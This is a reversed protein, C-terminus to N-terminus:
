LFPYEVVQVVLSDEMLTLEKPQLNERLFFNPLNLIECLKNEGDRKPFQIASYLHTM